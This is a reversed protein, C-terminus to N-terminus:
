VTVPGSENKGIYQQEIDVWVTSLLNFGMHISVPLVSFSSLHVRIKGKVTFATAINRPTCGWLNLAINNATIHGVITIMNVKELMIEFFEGESFQSPHYQSL